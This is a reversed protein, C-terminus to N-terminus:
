ILPKLTISKLILMTLIIGQNRPGNIVVPGQLQSSVWSRSGWDVRPRRPSRWPPWNLASRPDDWGWVARHRRGRMEEWSPSGLSFIYMSPDACSLRLELANAISNHREQVVLVDVHNPFIYMIQSFICSSSPIIAPFHQGKTLPILQHTCMIVDHCPLAKQMEPGQSLFGGTVPSNGACPGTIHNSIKKTALGSSATSCVTLTTPSKFLWSAWISQNICSLRLELANAISNRREQVLGDIHWQLPKPPYSISLNHYELHTLESGNIDHDHHFEPFIQLSVQILLGGTPTTKWPLRDWSLYFLCLEYLHENHWLM